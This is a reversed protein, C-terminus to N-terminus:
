MMLTDTTVEKVSKPAVLKRAEDNLALSAVFEDPRKVFGDKFSGDRNRRIVLSRDSDHIGLILHDPIYVRKEQERLPLRNIKSARGSKHNETLM